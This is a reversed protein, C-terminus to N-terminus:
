RSPPELWPSVRRQAGQAGPRRDEAAGLGRASTSFGDALSAFFRRGLFPRSQRDYRVDDKHLRGGWGVCVGAIVVASVPLGAELWYPDLQLIIGLGEAIALVVVVLTAVGLAWINAVRRSYGNALIAKRGQVLANGFFFALFAIFIAIM